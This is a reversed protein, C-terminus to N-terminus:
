QTETDSTTPYIIKIGNESLFRCWEPSPKKETIITSISRIDTIKHLAPKNFKSSDALLISERGNKAALGFLNASEIDISTFGFDKSLGDTGLFALYGRLHNLTEYTIPGIADMREPRYQGGLILVNLGPARLEQATRISNVIVSLSKKTRLFKAMAFCTTGSDLFIQDGDQVLQAALSAIIKKAEVNRMSKSIFSYDSHKVVCAGGHNVDLLGEAAIGQLDRRITAESVNLTNSLEKVRVQGQKYALALIKERRENITSLM